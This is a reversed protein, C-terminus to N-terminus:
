GDRGGLAHLSLSFILLGIGLFILARWALATRPRVTDIFTEAAWAGFLILSTIGAAQLAKIM